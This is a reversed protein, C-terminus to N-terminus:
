EPLIGAHLLAELVGGGICRAKDSISFCNAFESRRPDIDAIKFGETVPYGDRILGRLIGSITAYVPIAEEQAKRYADVIDMFDTVEGSGRKCIHAIKEGKEVYDSIKKDGYLVGEAEAHIVREKSVGAIEGPVGTNEMASGRYLVRGLHHGRMTEIVVNVDKGATFGPGLGVIFPAMDLNTGLNKKALIADIVAAPKAEKIVKGEPDVMMAVYGDEIATKADDLSGVCKCTIGEVTCEKEYVAESFAVYRRIASPNKTELVLVAYGSNHLKSITGTAIDGGGRVIILNKKM